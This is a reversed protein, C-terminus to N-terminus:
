EHRLAVVPDVTTARRAPLYSAAAAVLTFTAAVLAFTSIDLPEIGFLMSQLYQSGAAAGILGLVVGLTSLALGRRLVLALVQGRQAGLAMRVGIEQTRQSVAYALVSYVGIAALLAAVGAFVALIVAYFRERAVSTAELDAMPSIADIGINPDLSRITERVSPILAAPNDNTRIAFSLFGIAGENNILAAADPRLDAELKMYQRYDVFIEPRLEEFATRQRVTEAVGAITVPIVAKDLHWDVTRGVANSGFYRDAMVRNIVVVLPAGAEDTPRLDRGSLIPVGMATLFGDSVSRVRIRANRMEALTRGPPVWRGIYLEEGILLGHRAFGAAQVRPNVRFRDLLTGITEAKRATSYQDPFLLNFALVRSPDYGKDFTSLRLFSHTLLGAGILLITALVLQAVVLSARLRSATRGTGAGRGAFARLHNTTSLHWSPLLAFTLCAVASVGFATALLRWSVGVEHARPLIGTGFMLRFIGPAEITAMHKVATVGVAGLAAGIIGGAVTLVLSEALVQGIIRTRSAGVALRVAVERQRAIGRALMLNAVNACVILLMVAVAVLLMRLAPRRPGVAEEKVSQIEFRPGNPPTSAAPWPERIASGLQMAEETAAQLSVGDALLAILTVRPVTPAPAPVFPTFFDIAGAPMQFDAPMVGIVTLLRPPIPRLLAGARLEITKGVISPDSHFHIRWVDHSLVVVDPNAEDQRTIIRGLMARTQLMELANSSIAAGWLGAAGDPTKVMRQAMGITFAADSLTKSQARWELFEPYTLGRRLPPQGALPHPAWEVLQVLRDGAPFPLPRLLITEVVSYIATAAGIGVSLTLIAAITFGPSRALSRIAYRLDRGM